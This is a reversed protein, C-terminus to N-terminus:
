LTTMPPVIFKEIAAEVTVDGEETALDILHILLHEAAYSFLTNQVLLYNWGHKGLMDMDMDTGRERMRMSAKTLDSDIFIITKTLLDSYVSSAGSDSLIYSLLDAVCSKFSAYTKMKTLQSVNICPVKMEKLIKAVHEYIFQSLPSRDVAMTLNQDVRAADAVGLSTLWHMMYLLQKCVDGEKRRFSPHDGQLTAFDLAAVSCIGGRAQLRKLATSKGVASTGEVFIINEFMASDAFLM